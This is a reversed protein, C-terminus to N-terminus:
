TERKGTGSVLLVVSGLQRRVDENNVDHTDEVEGWQSAQWDVELSVTKAAEEVGFHGDGSLNPKSVPGESWETIFRAAAILSKGALVARELGAIEWATLGSVWGQVVERVGEAQKKPMIADGDLVPQLTVGPWVHTTMFSVIEDTTRKQVDRLSEGAQNRFDYEGAPPAWCLLSDTDLYRLVNTTIDDRIKTKGPSEVADDREIDIARCVLSTLPILHQKTAQEASAVTDWELALAFALNPKSLPLQIIEKTQPHRLPRADLHIQLSGDVEKVSVDKWFRRRVTTSKGDKSSRIEKAQKLLDAQKRRREIRENINRAAPTPPEPPPGTGLVSAVNAAQSATAHISRSRTPPLIARSFTRLSIRTAPRM